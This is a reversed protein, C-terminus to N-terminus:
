HLAGLSLFLSFRLPWGYRKGFLFGNEESWTQVKGPMTRQINSGQHTEPGLTRSYNAEFSDGVGDGLFSVKKKERKETPLM